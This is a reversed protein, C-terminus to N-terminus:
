SILEAVSAPDAGWAGTDFGSINADDMDFGFLPAGDITTVIYDVKAGASKIPILDQALVYLETSSPLRGAICASYAISLSDPAYPNGNPTYWSSEDWGRRRTAWALYPPLSEYSYWVGDDWGQGPTDFAFYTPPAVARGDDSVFIHTAPDVFFARLVAEAGDATGDWANAARKAYLLRRYMDDPLQSLGDEGDYPGKWLGQDWGLNDTDYSFFAGPIPVRVNRSRGVWAGVADLQVGIATDIDFAAPIGALLYQQDCIPLLVREITARFKPKTSSAQWPTVRGFYVSVTPTAWSVALYYPDYDATLLTSDATLVTGDATSNIAM